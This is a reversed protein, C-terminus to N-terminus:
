WEAYQSAGSHYRLLEDDEDYSVQRDGPFVVHWLSVVEEPELSTRVHKALDQAHLGSTPLPKEPFLETYIERLDDASAKEVEIALREVAEKRTIEVM